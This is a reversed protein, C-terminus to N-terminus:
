KTEIANVVKYANMPRITPEIKRTALILIEELIALSNKLKPVIKRPRYIHAHM